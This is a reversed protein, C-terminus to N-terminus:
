GNNNVKSIWKGFREIFYETVEPAKEILQLDSEDEIEKGKLILPPLHFINGVFGISKLFDDTIISHSIVNFPYSSYTKAFEHVMEASKAEIPAIIDRIDIVHRRAKSAIRIFSIDIHNGYTVFIYIADPFENILRNLRRYNRYLSVAKNFVGGGYQNVLFPSRGEIESFNSLIEVEVGPIRELISKLKKLYDITSAHVGLYEVLYVHHKILSKEAM